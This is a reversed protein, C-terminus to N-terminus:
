FTNYSLRCWMEVSTIWKYPKWVMPLENGNERMFARMAYIVNDANDKYLEKFIDQIM